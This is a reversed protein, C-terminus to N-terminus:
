ITLFLRRELMSTSTELVLDWNRDPCCASRKRFVPIDSFDGGVDGDHSFYHRITFTACFRVDKRLAFVDHLTYGKTHSM